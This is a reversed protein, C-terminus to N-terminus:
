RRVPRLGYAPNTRRSWLPPRVRGMKEEEEQQLAAKGTVIWGGKQVGAADGALHDAVRSASGGLDLRSPGRPM